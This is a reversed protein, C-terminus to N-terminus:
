IGSGLGEIRLGLGQIRFWFGEIRFGLSQLDQVRGHCTLSWGTRVELGSRM